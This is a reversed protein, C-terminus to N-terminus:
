KDGFIRTSEEKTIPERIDDTTLQVQLRVDGAAVAQAKITFTADAKAALQKLPEFLVRQAEVRYRAPGDAGTAKLERPVLAALRVNSAAKSGQNSVKIEYVTDGGVEVPGTVDRVQFNVAALGEITVVEEREDKLGQATGRLALRAEGAALPLTTLTVTGTEQPPLEELGWYVSHTSPDFQGGNNAEVFKLEKPLVAVLEIEKATATGPNSISINHTANRELFRRKPGSMSVQLQPAVVELEATAETQLNAEARAVILNSVPGAAVANLVLDLERSEGPKLTGVEFELEKGSAHALGEPVNDSLVIGAAAGTGPNSLKIKLAVPQGKLVTAPGHVEMALMPRTAVTRVSAQALFHVTAVSGIEGEATPMLELEAQQQEGPKLTGLEWVLAGQPGRKAPPESGLLQTGQPITDHIEVGQATVSGANRVKIVFKAPKGIQIEAPASKEITITPAQSGSLQPDGPRGTGEEGSAPEVAATLAAPAESTDQPAFSPRRAAPEEDAPNSEPTNTEAPATSRGYRDVLRSGPANPLARPESEDEAVQADPTQDSDDAQPLEAAAPREPYSGPASKDRLGFPDASRTARMPGEDPAAENADPIDSEPAARRQSYRDDAPAVREAGAARAFPNARGDPERQNRTGLPIPTPLMDRPAIEDPLQAAQPAPASPFLTDHGFYVGASGFGIVGALASVGVITRNM